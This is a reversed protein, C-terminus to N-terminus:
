DDSNIIADVVRENIEDLMCRIENVYWDQDTLDFDQANHCYSAIKDYLEETTMDSYNM